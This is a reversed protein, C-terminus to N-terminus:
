PITRPRSHQHLSTSFTLPQMQSTPSLRHLPNSACSSQKFDLIRIIKLDGAMIMKIWGKLPGYCRNLVSKNDPEYNCSLVLGSALKCPSQSYRPIKRVSPQDTCRLLPLRNIHMLTQSVPVCIEKRPEVSRAIKASVRNFKSLIMYSGLREEQPAGSTGVGVCSFHTTM